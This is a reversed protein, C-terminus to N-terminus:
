APLWVTFTSGVGVETEVTLQGGMKQVVERSISLGVGTGPTKYDAAARGRYFREFIHPLDEPTIGPGTDKVRVIVWSQGGEDVSATSVVVSGAPTYNVANTVLRSIVLGILESDTRAYPLDRALDLQLQLDHGASLKQWTTLHGEILNNLNISELGAPATNLNLQSFLLVDEIMDRLREASQKLRLMFRERKEPRATELLELAILIGALPTRLEHSIRSLFEDKLRDLETLRLNAAQLEATRDAVRQELTANLDGLAEEAQKRETIDRTVGVLGIIDGGANRLPVKTSAHWRAQGDADIAPEELGIISQGDRVVPQEAALYQLALDRPYFDLDSKDLLEDATAAGMRRATALNALIFRSEVDKAYILDPAADILTRILNREAALREEAQKRGTIDLIVGVLGWLSGDLNTFTAKNFIVDHRTGDAYRVQSEYVQVGPQRFLALDMDHYKDALDRPTMDYVSTGVIHEKSRGLYTEFAANCGRYTGQTDKYFIPNPIADILHQLFHLTEQLVAEAQKRETIDEKVAVFHTTRGNADNVPSISAEEWYFGATKKRNHFVGHWERGATITAWLDRYIDAPTEGSKLIRPNQGLAEDFAYGTVETFKANVYEIRGQTDTIVISAPSQEVARQRTRLQDDIARRAVLDREILGYLLGATVAVFGWGKLTSLRTQLAPDNVLLDLLQDSFLIWLGSVLTYILTVRLATRAQLTSWVSKLLGM